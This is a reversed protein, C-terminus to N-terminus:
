YIKDLYSMIASVTYELQKKTDSRIVDEFSEKELKYGTKKDASNQWDDEILQRIIEFIEKSAWTCNTCNIHVEHTKHCKCKCGKM